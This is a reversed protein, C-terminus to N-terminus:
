SNFFFFNEWQFFVILFHLLFRNKARTYGHNGLLPYRTTHTSLPTAVHGGIYVLNGGTDSAGIVVLTFNM